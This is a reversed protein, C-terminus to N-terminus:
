CIIGYCSSSPIYVFWGSNVRISVDVSRGVTYGLGIVAHNSDWYNTSGGSVLLISPLGYGNNVTSEFRSWSFTRYSVNTYSTGHKQTYGNSLQAMKVPPIEVTPISVGIAYAALSTKLKEETTINSRLYGGGFYKNLHMLYMAIANIGCDTNYSGSYYGAKFVLQADYAGSVCVENDVSYPTSGVNVNEVISRRTIPTLVSMNRRQSSQLDMTKVTKGTNVDVASQGDDQVIAFDFLGSYIIPSDKSFPPKVDLSYLTVEYTCLDVIGFGDKGGDHIFEVCTYTPNGATDILHYADTPIITIGHHDKIVSSVREIDTEVMDAGIASNNDQAYVNFTLLFAMIVFLVIIKIKNKM